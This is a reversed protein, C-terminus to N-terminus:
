AIEGDSPPGDPVNAAPVLVPISSGPPLQKTYLDSRETTVTRLDLRSPKQPRDGAHNYWTKLKSWAAQLKDEHLDSEIAEGARATRQKRDEKFSTRIQRTLRRAEAQEHNGNRRLASRRDVLKWTEASIWDRRARSETRNPPPMQAKLAQFLADARTMPGGKPIRLPFRKRAKLYALNQKKPALLLTGVVM